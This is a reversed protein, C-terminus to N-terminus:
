KVVLTGCTSYVRPEVCFLCNNLGRQWRASYIYTNMGSAAFSASLLGPMAFASSMQVCTSIPERAASERCM